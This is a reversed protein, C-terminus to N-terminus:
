STMSWADVLARTLAPHLPAPSTGAALMSKLSADDVSRSKLDRLAGPSADFARGIAPLTQLLKVVAEKREADAALAREKENRAEVDNRRAAEAEKTTPEVVVIVHADREGRGRGLTAGNAGM